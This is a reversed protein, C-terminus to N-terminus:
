YGSQVYQEILQLYERDDVRERAGFAIARLVRLAQRRDPTDAGEGARRSLKSLRDRLTLLAVARRNEDGLQAEFEFIERLTRAEVDDAKQDSALADRAERQRLLDDLRKAEGSVDALGSFDSVIARLQYVTDALSVLAAIRARRRALIRETLGADRSRRGSQMAQVEMWEVALTAPEPSM